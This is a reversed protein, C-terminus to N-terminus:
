SASRYESWKIPDGADVRRLMAEDVPVIRRQWRSGKGGPQEWLVLVIEGGLKLWAYAEPTAAMKAIRARANHVSTTQVAVIGQFMVRDPDLVIADIFGFLDNHKCTIANFAETRGYSLGLDVFLKRSKPDLSTRKAV